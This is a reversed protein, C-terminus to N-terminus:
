GEGGAGSHIAVRDEAVGLVRHRIRDKGDRKAAYMMHDAVWLLEDVSEPLSRFTVAGISFTVRGSHEDVADCLNSHIRQLVATAGESDTEPLLLAFEDGGLRAVTDSTRTSDRLAVAVARLVRDGASHGFDDNVMKFNDIDLYVVTLIRNYRRGRELESEAVKLFHRGNAVQTLSDTRAQHREDKLSARLQSLLSTIILFIGLRTTANWALIWSPSYADGRVDVAAWVCASVISLLTGSRAGSFWAVLTIPLLYFISFSMEFGTVYDLGGLVAVILLALPILAGDPCGDLRQEIGQWKTAGGAPV